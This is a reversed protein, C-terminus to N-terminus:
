HQIDHLKCRLGETEDRFNSQDFRLYFKNFANALEGDSTFGELNMSNCNKTQHTGAITKMDSWASALTNEALRREVKSKYM